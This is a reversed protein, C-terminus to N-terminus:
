KENSTKNGCAILRSVIHVEPTQRIKAPHATLDELYDAYRQFLEHFEKELLDRIRATVESVTWVRREPALNLTFQTPEAM